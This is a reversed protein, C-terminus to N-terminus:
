RGESVPTDPNLEGRSLATMVSGLVGNVFRPSSESGFTKALEVAENVATKSPTNTYHLLEFLAIRLINRDVPSLLNVPWAPAYSQIVRDLDARKEWVGQFLTRSFDLVADEARRDVEDEQALWELVSDEVSGRVDGAFGAQLAMMRATRRLDNTLAKAM